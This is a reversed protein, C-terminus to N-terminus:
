QKKNKQKKNKEENGVAGYSVFSPRVGYWKSQFDGICINGQSLKDAIQHSLKKRWNPPQNGEYGHFTVFVKKKPYLLRFPLFWYFVDHCHIVDCDKLLQQHKIFWLWIQWKKFNQKVSVPIRFIKIGEYEEQLIFKPPEGAYERKIEQYDWETIITLQHGRKLLEKGLLLCHKEVGGILPYFRRVFFLIKM